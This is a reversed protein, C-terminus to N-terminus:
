VGRRDLRRAVAPSWPREELGFLAEWPGPTMGILTDVGDTTGLSLVKSATKVYLDLLIDDARPPALQLLVAADYGVVRDPQMPVGSFRTTVMASWDSGPEIVWVRAKIDHGVDLVKWRGHEGGAALVQDRIVGARFLKTGGTKAAINTHRM